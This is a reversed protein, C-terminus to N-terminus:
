WGLGLRRARSAGSTACCRRSCGPDQSAYVGNIKNYSCMVTWPQADKVVREFGRLYIERLPRPDVDSSATMREFEQNNAAFHKLSSGVGQSQIGERARRHRGLRDPGRSTSSTAGCLPSRKINIGPGLIVAVDEIASEVGLAV